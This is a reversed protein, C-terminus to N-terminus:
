LVVCVGRACGVGPSYRDGGSPPPTRAVSAGSKQFAQCKMAITRKRVGDTLVCKGQRATGPPAICHLHAPRHLTMAPVAISQPQHFVCRHIGNDLLQFIRLHRAHHHCDGPVRSCQPIVQLNGAPHRHGLLVLLAPISFDGQNITDVHFLPNLFYGRM